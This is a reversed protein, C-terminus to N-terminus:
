VASRQPSRSTLINHNAPKSKNIQILYKYAPYMFLFIRCTIFIIIFNNPLGAGFTRFGRFRATIPGCLTRTRGGCLCGM